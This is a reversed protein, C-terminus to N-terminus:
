ATSCFGSGALTLSTPTGLASYNTLISNIAPTALAATSAVGLSAAVVVRLISPSQRM